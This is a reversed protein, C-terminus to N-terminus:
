DGNNICVRVFRACVYCEEPCRYMRTEGSAREPPRARAAEWEARLLSYVKVDCLAGNTFFVGRLTGEYSYGCKQAIRESGTNRPNMLLELRNYPYSRFLYDSVMATAASMYGRGALEPALLRYGIERCIPTRSKFHSIAGVLNGSRDEVLYSEREETVFNTQAFERRMADPSHFISSFFEGRSPLDGILAMYHNLDTALIHRVTCLPGTLM